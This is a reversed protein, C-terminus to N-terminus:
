ASASAQREKNELYVADVGIDHNISIWSTIRFCADSCMLSGNTFTWQSVTQGEGLNTQVPSSDPISNSIELFNHEQQDQQLPEIVVGTKQLTSPKPPGNTSTTIGHFSNTPSLRFTPSSNGGAL